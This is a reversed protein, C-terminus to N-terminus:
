LDLRFYDSDCWGLHTQMTNRVTEVLRFGCRQLLRRSPANRPDVDAMLHDCVGAARIHAIFGHLAETAIGQGWCSRRLAYGIQPVRWCGLKGVIRGQWEIFTDFRSGEPDDFLPQLWAATEALSAHAARSWYTMTEPDSFIAHIDPLDAPTACRLILRDTRIV